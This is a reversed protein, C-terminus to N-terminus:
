TIGTLGDAILLMAMFLHFSKNEIVRVRKYLYNYLNYALILVFEVLFLINM